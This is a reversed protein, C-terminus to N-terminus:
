VKIESILNYKKNTYIEQFALIITNLTYYIGYKLLKMAGHLRLKQRTKAFNFLMIRKYKFNVKRRAEQRRGM